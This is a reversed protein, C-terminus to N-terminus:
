ESFIQVLAVLFVSIAVAATITVLRLGHAYQDQILPSTPAGITLTTAKEGHSSALPAVSARVEIHDDSSHTTPPTPSSEQQKRCILPRQM